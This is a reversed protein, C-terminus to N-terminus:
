AALKVQEAQTVPKYRNLEELQTLAEAEFQRVKV